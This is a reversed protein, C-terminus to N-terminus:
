LLNSGSRGAAASGISSGELLTALAQGPDTARMLAEGVLVASVGQGELERLQEPAAIGSESVVVADSPMAGLLRSTRDVDVTFDRLDRNNVGIMRAGIRVARALEQRDHVEVLVDLCLDGATKHLLALESEELAAVILLVADAGALRAEYLQYVDVVFDKRLIPLGCAARAARLDDLSGEFNPGETLVSLASAGGLEYASAIAAVDSLERLPGASPSRRKFEAIVGIGPRALARHFGGMRDEFSRATLSAVQAQLEDLPTSRRRENLDERTESLIRQLVTPRAVSAPEPSSM